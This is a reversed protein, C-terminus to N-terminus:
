ENMCVGGLKFGNMSLYRLLETAGDCYEHEGLFCSFESGNKSAVLYVM